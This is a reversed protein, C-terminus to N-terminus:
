IDTAHPVGNSMNTNYTIQVSCEITLHYKRSQDIDLYTSAVSLFVQARDQVFQNILQCQAQTELKPFSLRIDAFEPLGHIIHAAQLYCSAGQIQIQNSFQSPWVRSIKILLM